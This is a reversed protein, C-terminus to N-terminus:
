VLGLLSTPVSKPQCNPAFTGSLAENEDFLDRMIQAVQAMCMADSDNDRNHVNALVHGIDDDYAFLVERGKTLASLGSIHALLKEKLRTTHIREKQKVGLQELRICYDRTLESLKFIPTTTGDLRAEQIFSVLEALAICDIMTESMGHPSKKSETQRVRNYLAVLCKRHYKAETAGMDGGSLKSLLETDQLQLAISRVHADLGFTCAEQLTERSSSQDCFLCINQPTCKQQTSASSRTRKSIDTSSDDHQELHKRKLARQLKTKNYMVRCSKHVVASQQLLNKEFDDIDCLYQLCPPLEDTEAFDKLDEVLSRYGAGCAKKDSNKAPCILKEEQNIQCIICLEM